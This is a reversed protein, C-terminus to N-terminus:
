SIIEELLERIFSIAKLTKANPGIKITMATSQKVLRRHMLLVKQISNYVEIAKPISSESMGDEDYEYSPSFFAMSDDTLEILLPSIVKCNKLIFTLRFKNEETKLAAVFIIENNKQSEVLKQSQSIVEEAIAVLKAEATDNEGINFNDSYFDDYKNM